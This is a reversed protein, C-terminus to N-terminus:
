WGTFCLCSEQWIEMCGFSFICVIVSSKQEKSEQLMKKFDKVQGIVPNLASSLNQSASYMEPNKERWCGNGTVVSLLPVRKMTIIAVSPWLFSFNEMRATVFTCTGKAKRSTVFHLLVLIQFCVQLFINWGQSTM